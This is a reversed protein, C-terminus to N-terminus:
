SELESFQTDKGGALSRAPFRLYSNLSYYLGGAMELEHARGGDAGM